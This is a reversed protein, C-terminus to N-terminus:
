IVEIKYSNKSIVNGSNNILEIKIIYKGKEKINLNMFGEPMPPNSFHKVSDAPICDIEIRKEIVIGKDKFLSIQAYINGYKDLTDNVVWISSIGINRLADLSMKERDLDIGILIPQYVTKLTYYGKKPRRSYDVVSWTIANWNDVFMFQFIGTVKSYKNKRYNEIAYKLLKAQYDQSNEIFEEISNGKDIKAVNFTPDYQFDHYAWVSWKPPWLEDDKMMERMTEVNPLAQAGFESIFPASPVSYFEYYHTRYWGPYPHYAFDSAIDIYRTSDKAKVTLYLLPDLTHRNINPENHCCWICISPHNYFQDIMAAIQSVANQAFEDTEEYSWQLPFDQWVLIGAEDCADYFEQRNIHAHVRVTNINAEKLLRMDEAIM